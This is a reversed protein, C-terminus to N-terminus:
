KQPESKKIADKIAYGTWMTNLGVLVAFLDPPVTKTAYLVCLIAYNTGGIQTKHGDIFKLIGKMKLKEKIASVIM